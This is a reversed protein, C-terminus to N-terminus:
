LSRLVTEPAVTQRPYAPVAVNEGLALVDAVTAERGLREDFLRAVFGRAAVVSQLVRYDRYVLEWLGAKIANSPAKVDAIGRATEVTAGDTMRRGAFPVYPCADRMHIARRPGAAYQHLTAGPLRSGIAIRAAESATCVAVEAVASGNKEILDAVYRITAGSAAVDDLIGVPGTLSQFNSTSTPTGQVVASPGVGVRSVRYRGLRGDQGTSQAMLPDLIFWKSGGQSTEIAWRAFAAYDIVLWGQESAFQLIAFRIANASPSVVGKGLPSLNDLCVSLDDVIVPALEAM